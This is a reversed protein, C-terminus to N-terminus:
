YPRAYALFRWIPTQEADTAEFRNRISDGFGNKVDRIRHASIDVEAYWSCEQLQRIDEPRLSRPLRTEPIASIVLMDEDAEIVLSVHPDVDGGSQRYLGSLLLAADQWRSFLYRRGESRVLGGTLLGAVESTRCLYYVIM